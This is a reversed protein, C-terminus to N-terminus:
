AEQGIFPISPIFTEPYWTFNGSHIPITSNTMERARQGREKFPDACQTSPKNAMAHM